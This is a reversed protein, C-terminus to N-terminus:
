VAYIMLTLNLAFFALSPQSLAYKGAILISPSSTFIVQFFAVRLPSSRQAYPSTAFASRFIARNFANGLNQPLDHVCNSATDNIM